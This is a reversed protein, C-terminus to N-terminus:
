FHLFEEDLFTNNYIAKYIIYPKVVMFEVQPLVITIYLLSVGLGYICYLHAAAVTCAGVICSV